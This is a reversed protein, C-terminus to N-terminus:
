IHILSLYHTALGDAVASTLTQMEEDSLTRGIIKEAECRHVTIILFVSKNEGVKRFSRGIFSSNEMM